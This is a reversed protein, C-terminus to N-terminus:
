RTVSSASGAASTRSGCGGGGAYASDDGDVQMLALDLAEEVNGDIM